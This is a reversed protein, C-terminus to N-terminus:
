AFLDLRGRELLSRVPTELLTEAESGADIARTGAAVTGDEGGPRQEGAFSEGSVDVDVLEVGSSDFMERLRPLAAELAERVMSHASSFQISAQDNHVQLRVEMPGLQAPNLRIQAGQVKRNVMWQIREGLAQDWDGQTLPTNVSLTASVSTASGSAQAPPSAAAATVSEARLGTEVPASKGQVMLRKLTAMLNAMEPQGPQAQEAVKDLGASNFANQTENVPLKEGSGVVGAQGQMLQLLSRGMTRDRSLTVESTKDGAAVFALADAPTKLAPFEDLLQHFAAILSEAANPESGSGLQELKEAMQQLVQRPEVGNAIAEDLVKGLLPLLKGAQPLSQVQPFLSEADLTILPAVAFEGSVAAHAQELLPAFGAHDGSDMQIEHFKKDLGSGGGASDTALPLLPLSANM